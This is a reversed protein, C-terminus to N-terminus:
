LFAKQAQALEFVGENRENKRGAEHVASCLVACCRSVCKHWNTM